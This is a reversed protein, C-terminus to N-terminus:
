GGAPPAQWTGSSPPATTVGGRGRVPEATAPRGGYAGAPPATVTHSPQGWRNSRDVRPRSYHYDRHGRGDVWYSRHYVWRGDHVMYRPAVYVYGRRPQYWYGSVWYWDHGGWDWYGHIWVLDRGPPPPPYEPVPPPPQQAVYVEAPESSYTGEAHVYSVPQDRVVCAGLGAALACLASAAFVNMGPRYMSDEM